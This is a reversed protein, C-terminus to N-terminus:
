MILLERGDLSQPHVERALELLIARAHQRVRYILHAAFQHGDQVIRDSELFVREWQEIVPLLEPEKTTVAYLRAFLSRQLDRRSLEGFLDSAEITDMLDMECHDAPVHRCAAEASTVLNSLLSNIVGCLCRVFAETSQRHEVRVCRGKNPHRDGLMVLRLAEHVLDAATRGALCEQLQSTVAVRRLRKAAFEHLQQRQAETLQAVLEAVTTYTRGCEVQPGHLSIINDTM